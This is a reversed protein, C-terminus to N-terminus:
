TGVIIIKKDDLAHRLIPLLLSLHVTYNVVIVPINIRKHFFLLLLLLTICSYQICYFWQTTLKKPPQSGWNVATKRPPSCHACAHYYFQWLLSFIKIVDHFLDWTLHKRYISKNPQYLFTRWDVCFHPEGVFRYTLVVDFIRFSFFHRQMTSLSAGHWEWRSRLVESNMVYTSSM